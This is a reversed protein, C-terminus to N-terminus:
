PQFERRLAVSAVSRSFDFLSVNSQNRTIAVQPTVRWDRAPVYHLGVTLSYQEDRRTDLFFPEPGGHRRREYGADLFLTHAASSPWQMGARAGALAHGLHPVGGAREDERGAYLSGYAVVGSPAFAHAAGVGAVARDADRISQSPYSLRAFQGFLTVQTNASYHHQWQGVLGLADRFRSGDILFRNGQVALGYTDRGRTWSLGASADLNGTDFRDERHNVVQTAAVGGVIALDPRLPARLNAGGALSLFNDGRRTGQPDLTVLLGGLAPIAIQGSGTASNVNSDRGIRGEIFPRLQFTRSAEIRSIADLYRDIGAAAEPPLESRRVSTFERRATETEGAALYARAIEARARAHGPRAELVRELAFIARTPQGSHLAAVGLLFDFDPEGARQSEHPSLLAFAARADNAALLKAAQENLADAWAASGAVLLLAALIWGGVRSRRTQLTM